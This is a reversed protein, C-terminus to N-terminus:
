IQDLCLLKREYPQFCQQFLAFHQNVANQAKGVINEIPKKKTTMLGKGFLGQNKLIQLVLREFVSQSFSFNSTILLKDKEWLAKWGNPSTEAM